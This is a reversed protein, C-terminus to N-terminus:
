WDITLKGFLGAVPVRGPDSLMFEYYFPQFHKFKNTSGVRQRSVDICRSPGQCLQVQLGRPWGHVNWNWSISKISQGTRLGSATPLHATYVYNKSHLTPLKVSANSSGALAPASLMTASFAFSAAVAVGNLRKFNKM